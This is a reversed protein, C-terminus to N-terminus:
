PSYASGGCRECGHHGPDSIQKRKKPFSNWVDSLLRQKEKNIHIKWLHSTYEANKPIMIYEMLFQIPGQTSEFPIGLDSLKQFSFGRTAGFDSRIATQIKPYKCRERERDGVMMLIGIAFLCGRSM